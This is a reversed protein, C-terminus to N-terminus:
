NARMVTTYEEHKVNRIISVTTTDSHRAPAAGPRRRSPNRDAM